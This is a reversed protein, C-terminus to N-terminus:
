LAVDAEFVEEFPVPHHRLFGQSYDIGMDRLIGEVAETEVFEAVTKKGTIRAV